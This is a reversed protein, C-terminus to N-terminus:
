KQIKKIEEITVGEPLGYDFLQYEDKYYTDNYDMFEDNGFVSGKIHVLHLPGFTNRRTPIVEINLGKTASFEKTFPRFAVVENYDGVRIASSLLENTKLRLRDGKIGTKYIIKGSYFPLGQSVISGLRLKAPLSHIINGRPNATVGFDGIIYLAEIDIAPIFNCVAKIENDGIKYFSDKINVTYIASDVFTGNIYPDIKNGNLYYTFRNFDEACLKTGTPLENVEFKYTLEVKGWSKHREDMAYKASFWPQVMEGSRKHLGFHTRIERDVVLVEKRPYSVGDIKYECFDLVCVNPEDLTYDFKGGLITSSLVEYKSKPVKTTEKKTFYLLKEQGAVLNIDVFVEDKEEGYEQIFTEGTRLDWEEVGYGKLKTNLRLHTGNVRDTNLLMVFYGDDVERVNMIVNSAFISTYFLPNEKLAKSIEAPNSGVVMFKNLLNKDIRQRECDIYDPLGRTFVVKGGQSAFEDLIKLTSSRITKLGGVLVQKYEAIGVKLITEDGRKEISYLRSMMEEDGYDFDIQCNILDNFLDYYTRNLVLCQTKAPQLGEAWGYQLYGWMSEVPNIVLTDTVQKGRSLVYHIRAYYDELYSYEKWWTSQHGISAPYDRKAEGKMGYWYLHPCRFNIGLIAQWDGINKYKDLTMHWGTAGYLESLAMEKGLQKAVSSVKKAAFFSDNYEGLIDIGPYDMHEFFRMISGSFSSECFLSDEHLIHGTMILKNDKCWKHYPIAFNNIFMQEVTEIYEWSIKSFDEGAYKFYLEPLRKSLDHGHIKNFEEFLTYTYPLFKDRDKNPVGHGTFMSGVAPEDTFIGLITNGFKDGCQEKYKEHTSKIFAQVAESNITDLNTFGNFGDKKEMEEVRFIIAKYGSKIDFRSYAPYYDILKGEENLKIAFSAIFEQGYDALSFELREKMDFTIFKRRYKPNATVMGSCTGSPYRDEDYLWVELGIKEAEEICVKVADFWDSGLYETRLGTRSHIFFGGYGMEKMINVQRVLEDKDLTGNWGWFPKARYKVAPKAFEKVSVKNMKQKDGLAM